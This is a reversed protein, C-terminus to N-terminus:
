VAITCTVVKVVCSVVIAFDVFYSTIKIVNSSKFTKNLITLGSNVFSQEKEEGEEMKEDDAKQTLAQDDAVVNSLGLMEQLILYLKYHAFILSYFTMLM